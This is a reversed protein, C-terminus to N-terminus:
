TSIKGSFDPSQESSAPWHYTNGKVRQYNDDLANELLLIAVIRRAMNMVERAEDVRLARGLVKQERYSLWKKIVQYGGIYYGWAKAPINKWYAIGNLYVDCTTDGLREVAQGLTLGLAKTGKEIASLEKPTYSRRILKGKGPM